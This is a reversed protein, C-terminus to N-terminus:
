VVFFFRLYSYRQQTRTIRVHVLSVALLVFLKTVSMFRFLIVTPQTPFQKSEPQTNVDCSWNRNTAGFLLFVENVCRFPTHTHTDRALWIASCLMQLSFQKIQNLRKPCCLAHRCISKYYEGFAGGDFHAVVRRENPVEV